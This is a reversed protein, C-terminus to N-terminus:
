QVPPQSPQALYVETYLTILDGAKVDMLPSVSVTMTTTGGLAVKMQFETRALVRFKGLVLTVRPKDPM